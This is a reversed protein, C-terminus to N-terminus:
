ERAATQENQAELEKVQKTFADRQTSWLGAGAGSAVNTELESELRRKEALLQGIKKSNEELELTQQAVKQSVQEHQVLLTKYETSMTAQSQAFTLM